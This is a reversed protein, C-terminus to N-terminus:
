SKFLLNVLETNPIKEFNEFHWGNQLSYYHESYGLPITRVHFCDIDIGIIVYLKNKEYAAEHKGSNNLCRVIDGVKWQEFPIKM